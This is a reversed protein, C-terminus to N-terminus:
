WRRERLGVGAHADPRHRQPQPERFAGYVLLCAAVPRTAERSVPKHRDRDRRGAWADNLTAPPAGRLSAETSRRSPSHRRPQSQRHGDCRRARGATDCGGRAGSALQHSTLSRRHDYRLDRPRVAHKIKTGFDKDESRFRTSLHELQRPDATLLYQILLAALVGVLFKGDINIPM